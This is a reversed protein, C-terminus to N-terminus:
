ARIALGGRGVTSVKSEAEELLRLAQERSYGAQGSLFGEMSVPSSSAPLSQGKAQHGVHQGSDKQHPM